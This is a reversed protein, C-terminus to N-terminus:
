GDVAMIDNEFLMAMVTKENNTTMTIMHENENDGCHHETDDYDDV